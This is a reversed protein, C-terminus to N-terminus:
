VIIDKKPQLHYVLYCWCYYQLWFNPGHFNRELSLLIQNVPSNMRDIEESLIGCTEQFEIKLRCNAPICDSAEQVRIARRLLYVFDPIRYIQPEFEWHREDYSTIDAFQQRLETDFLYIYTYTRCFVLYREDKCYAASITGKRFKFSVAKHAM